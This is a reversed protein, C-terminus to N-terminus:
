SAGLVRRAEEAEPMNPQLELARTLSAKARAKDGAKAYVLGLHAHYIARKPDKAIADELLPVALRPLDKKYYVWALTDSVEPLEPLQSKATQALQLAVDLNGDTDAYIQALNNAAVAARSDITLIQEYRKRAEARNNEIEYLMATMTRAGVAKPDRQVIQEFQERAQLTKRQAVLVQGLMSYASLNNPAAGIAKKLAAEAQPLQGDAIEIRAALLHLQANGPAAALAREVRARAAPRKNEAVDVGVLGSLAELNAPDIQLAREFLARAAAWDARAGSWTGATTLAMPSKGYQSVLRKVVPEAQALQGKAILGRALTLQATPDNPVQQAADQAMTLAQDANGEALYLRSLHLQTAVARPNLRLVQNFAAIAAPRNNASANLMGMTYHAEINNPQDKVAQAAFALAESYKGETGLFRAKTLLAEVNAPEKKLAEDLTRHAEATQKRSYQIAALRTKAAAESQPQRSLPELVATADDPRDLSLYYDALALRQPAQGVTEQEAAARLYPEAQAARNNHQLFVAMARNAMVHTPAKEVAGRFYKEAEDKRDVGWLYNALSLQADVSNPEAAVARRFASEADPQNGRSLQVSALTAYGAASPEIKVADELQKIAGDFDKLGALSNGMLVLARSNKPNSALVKAVRTRADEFQGTAILLATAKLQVDTNDPMLDAARVYEQLAPAPEGIQLYAEGLKQRAEGFRGDVGLANRYQVIADNYRKQEFFRDGEKMYEQKAVDPDQSCGAVALLPVFSVSLLLATWSRRM